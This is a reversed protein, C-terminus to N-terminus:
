LPICCWEQQRLYWGLVMTQRFKMAYHSGVVVEAGTGIINSTANSEVNAMVDEYYGRASAYNISVVEDRTVMSAVPRM